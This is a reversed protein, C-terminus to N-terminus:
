YYAPFEGNFLLDWWEFAKRENGSKHEDLAKTARTAATDLKSLADVRKVDSSCAHIRGTHGTPDNMSALEHGQLRELFRKLDQAYDIFTEGDMYQAARMELYFSSIPVNRNYKWAKALRALEKAGGQPNSNCSNVYSLHAEPTSEMWEDVVGPINFKMVEKDTVREKAYAPIVEVREYGQGFELVVAPRSVHVHTYPFREQLASRIASLTSDSLSPRNSKLSVFFDVDSHGSVGTGHKFSGSEFMRYVGFKADLKSRISERHSSAKSRESDSPTLGNLFISFAAAATKAMSGAM